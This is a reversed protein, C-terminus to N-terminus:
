GRGTGLCGSSIANANELIKHLHYQVSTRKESKKWVAYNQQPENIDNWSAIQKKISSM